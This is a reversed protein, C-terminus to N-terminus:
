FFVYIFHFFSNFYLSVSLFTYFPWTNATVTVLFYIRECMGGSFVFCFFVVRQWSYLLYIAPALERSIRLIPSSKVIEYFSRWGKRKIRKPSVSRKGTWNWRLLLPNKKKNLHPFLNPYTSRYFSLRRNNLQRSCTLDVNERASNWYIRRVFPTLHLLEIFPLISMLFGFISDIIESHFGAVQFPPSKM